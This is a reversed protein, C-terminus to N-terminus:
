RPGVQVRQPAIDARPRVQVEPEVRQIVHTLTGSITIQAHWGSSEPAMSPGGVQMQVGAVFQRDLMPAHTQLIFLVLDRMAELEALTRNIVTIVYSGTFRSETNQILVGAANRTPAAQMRTAPYQEGSLADAHVIICPNELEGHPFESSIRVHVKQFFAVLETDEVRQIEYTIGAVLGAAELDGGARITSGAVELIEYSGAAPGSLIVLTDGVPVTTGSHTRRGHLNLSWSKSKDTLTDGDVSTVTGRLNHSYGNTLAVRLLATDGRVAELGLQLTRLIASKM